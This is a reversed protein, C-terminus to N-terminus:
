ILRVGYDGFANDRALLAMGESLAQALIIRDFPDKHHYPLTHLTDLHEPTIALLEIANAWVHDRVLTSVPLPVNLRGLSSKITIEWISGISLYREHEPNEILERSSGDLRSDGAIFWLFIQTDLLIRM